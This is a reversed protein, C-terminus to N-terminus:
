SVHFQDRGLSAQGTDWGLKQEKEKKKKEM